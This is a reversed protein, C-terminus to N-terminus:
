PIVRAVLYLTLKITWMVGVVGGLVGLVTLVETVPLWTNFGMLWVIADSVHTVDILTGVGSLVAQLAALMVHAVRGLLDIIM